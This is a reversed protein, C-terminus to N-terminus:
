IHSWIPRIPSGITEALQQIQDPSLERLQPNRAALGYRAFGQPWSYSLDNLSSSAGCCPLVVALVPPQHEFASSMADGWWDMDLDAHCLPCSVREFNAGADFFRPYDLAESSVEEAAPAIRRLLEEASARSREGPIYDPSIPILTLINDSM